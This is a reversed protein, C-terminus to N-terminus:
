HCGLDLYHGASNPTGWGMAPFIHFAEAVHTPVVIMHCVSGFLLSFRGNTVAAM